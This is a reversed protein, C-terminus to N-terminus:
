EKKRRKTEGDTERSSNKEVYRKEPAIDYMLVVVIRTTWGHETNLNTGGVLIMM